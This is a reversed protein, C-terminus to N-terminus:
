RRAMGDARNVVGTRARRDIHLEFVDPRAYDPAAIPSGGTQLWADPM